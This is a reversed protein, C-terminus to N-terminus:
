GQTSPGSPLAKLRGGEVVVREGAQPAQAQEFTRRTGDDMRVSVQYTTTSKTRKEVEHGALGGGVAGLVTMARRGDGKGMQNGVVAGLVGGAVAGIGSGEGKREIARVSEVIGCTRCVVAPRSKAVAPAAAAPAPKASAGPDAAAQARPTVPGQGIAGQPSAVAPPPTASSQATTASPQSPTPAGHRALMSAGAALSAAAMVGTILWIGRSPRKEIPAASRPSEINM